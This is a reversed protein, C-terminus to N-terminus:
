VEWEEEAVPEFPVEASMSEALLVKKPELIIQRLLAQHFPNTISEVLWEWFRAVLVIKEEETRSFDELKPLFVGFFFQAASTDRREKMGGHSRLFRFCIDALEYDFLDRGQRDELRFVARKARELFEQQLYERLQWADTM